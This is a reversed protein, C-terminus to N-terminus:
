HENEFEIIFETGKNVESQVGITGGLTEVQTKVMFLGMGKGEIGSHFKKYLGFVDRSRKALDIGMGNDSFTLIIKNHLLESKIKIVIPVTLQRYKLSNSILNYFISYLYSKCTVMEDIASFDYEILGQSSEVVNVLVMKIDETLESFKTNIKTEAIGHKVQLIYNLDRVVNDLKGASESLGRSINQKELSNLSPHNLLDTAGMINALPARLNHSVIYTFQELNQNRRVLDATLKEKEIEANKRETIDTLMLLSGLYTRDDGIISSASVHVWIKKGEKCIYEQEFDEAIGKKCRAMKEKVNARGKEDLLDNNTISNMEKASYGFIESFRKNVFMTQNNNDVLWIGEQATEVIQRYRLENQRIAEKALKQETVDFAFSALGIINKNEWIPYIAIDFYRYYGDFYISKEFKVTEGLLAKRYVSEWAQAEDPDLKKLFDYVHDGPNVSFGYIQLLSKKLQQNFTIFKMERDLSYIAADTNEIIANLNSQSIYLLGEAKKRSTIDQHSLVLKSGDNGFHSVSLLFWRKIEPSDCPYELEFSEKEKSFVTKIGEMAQEAFLDGDALSKICVDFYNSGMSVKELGIAGNAKAFDNWAKNVAIIDGNQEIVAIHSGLSALIGKNFMESERLANESEKIETIDHAIGYLGIPKGKTDFQFYVNSHLYRIVGDKRVIRHFFSVSSLSTQAEEIIEMIKDLDDPHIFSIWSEYPQLNDSPSLGFIKCAEESWVLLGTSFNTEWSGLHAIAQAEKLHTESNYLSQDLEKKLKADEFLDLSFSIDGAAEVLLAIEKSKFFGVESSYLNLIGIIAGKKRLPLVLTSHYERESAFSKWIASELESQIDNIVTYKGSRLVDALLGQDEYLINTFNKIDKEQIGSQEVINIKKNEADIIGIWVAKFKGFEIATSCAKKFVTQEDTSHVISQNLQSIFAYLRNAHILKEEEIKKDTIDRFNDVIGNIAPDNLLNTVTAELWRWSGDKHRIRGTHGKLPIGPSELVKQMMIEMDFVDDPHILLLLGIKMVEDVTYGLIKKISPSIYLIDGTVSLIAVGEASEEILARFTHENFYSTVSKM